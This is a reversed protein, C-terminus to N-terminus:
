SPKADAGLAADIRTVLVDYSHAEALTRREDLRQEDRSSSAANTALTVFDDSDAALQVSPQLHELAPLHTAIVPLGAALYQYAKVPNSGLNFASLRYPILGVDFAAVYHPAVDEDRHGMFHMNPAMPERMRERGEDDIAPGVIVVSGSTAAALQQLLEWDVRSNVAGGYGFIPRAFDCLDHPVTRSMAAAVFPAPDIAMPMEAVREGVIARKQHAALPSVAFVRDVVSLLEPEYPDVVEDGTWYISPAGPASRIFLAADTTFTWVLTNGVPIDLRRLASRVSRAILRDRIPRFTRRGLGRLLRPRVIWLSEGVKQLGSAGSSGFPWSVPPCVYIVQRTEALARALGQYFHQYAQWDHNTSYYVVARLGQERNVVAEHM